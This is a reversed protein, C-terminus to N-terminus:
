RVGVADTRLLFPAAAAAQTLVHVRFKKLRQVQDFLFSANRLCVHQLLDLRREDARVLTVLVAVGVHAHVDVRLLLRDTHELLELDDLLDLVGDRLDRKGVRLRLVLAHLEARDELDLDLGLIQATKGRQGCLLDDHLADALRLAGVDDLFILRLALLDDGRRDDAHILHVAIDHQVGARAIGRQQEGLLDGALVKGDAVAHLDVDGLDAALRVPVDDGQRAAM